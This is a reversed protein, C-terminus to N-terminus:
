GDGVDGPERLLERYVALNGELMGALSFQERVHRRAGDSLSAHLRPNWVLRNVAAAMARTDGPPVLLGSTGDDVAESVGPIRFAVVPVGAAQAELLAVGLGERHAPHLLIELHGLFERLDARYGAFRVAHMVGAARLEAELRARLPGDGFLLVRAEPCAALVEPLIRALLRHGKRPILQAVVGIAPQGPRLGYEARFRDIAWGPQCDEPAVASRVLRLKRQPIGDLRLQAEIGASIAVVRECLAWRLRRWGPLDPNDVRRTLVAPVGALRAALLGWSDAGRRSHVHVLDPQLRRIARLLATLLRPDAEGAFALPCVPLARDVAASLVASGAVGALTSRCGLAPLGAALALAQRAGGYLNRGTELHLVHM